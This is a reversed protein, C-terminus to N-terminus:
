FGSKVPQGMDALRGLLEEKSAGRLYLARDILRGYIEFLAFLLDLTGVCPADREAAFDSALAVARAAVDGAPAATARVAPPEARTMLPAEGVGLAQMASGVEGHLRIARLWREAQDEASHAFPMATGALAAVLAADQSLPIHAHEDLRFPDM